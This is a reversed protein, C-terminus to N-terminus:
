DWQFFLLFHWNRTLLNTNELIKIQMPFSSHQGQCCFSDTKKGQLTLSLKVWDQSFTLHRINLLWLKEIKKFVNISMHNVYLIYIYIYIFYQRIYVSTSCDCLWLLSCVEWGGIKRMGKLGKRGWSEGGTGTWCQDGKQSQINTPM